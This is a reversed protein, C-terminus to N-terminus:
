RIYKEDSTRWWPDWQVAVLQLNSNPSGADDHALNGEFSPYSDTFAEVVGAAIFM